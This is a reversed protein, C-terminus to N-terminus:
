QQSSGCPNLFIDGCVRTKRSLVRIKNDCFIKRSFIIFDVCPCFITAFFRKNRCIYVRTQRSLYVICQFVHKTAVFTLKDRCFYAQRSLVKTSPHLVTTGLAVGGSHSRCPSAKPVVFFAEKKEHM